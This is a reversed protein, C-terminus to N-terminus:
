VTVQEHCIKNTDEPSLPEALLRCFGGPGEATFHKCAHCLGFPQGGNAAIMRGLIQELAAQLTDHATDPLAAAAETLARPLATVQEGQATLAFRIVRKDSESRQEEVYGKQALAKLTQSVTGRTSGLYAAVHSPSRSFRNARSLYDLAARQAPNLEAAWSEGADLRALRSILEAIRTPHQM